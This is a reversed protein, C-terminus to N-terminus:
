ARWADWSISFLAYFIALLTFVIAVALSIKRALRWRKRTTESSAKKGLCFSLAFVIWAVPAIVIGALGAYLTLGLLIDQFNYFGSSVM